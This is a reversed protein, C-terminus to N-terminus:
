YPISEYVLLEALPESIDEIKSKKKSKSSTKTTSSTKATSSSEKTSTACGRKATSGLSCLRGGRRRSWLAKANSLENVIVACHPSTAPNSFYLISFNSFGNYHQPFLSYRLTSLICLLLQLWLFYFFTPPNNIEYKYFFIVDECDDDHSYWKLSVSCDTGLFDSCIKTVIM